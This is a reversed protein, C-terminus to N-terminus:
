ATGKKCLLILRSSRSADFARGDYDGSLTEISLDNAGLMAGLQEKDYLRVREEYETVVRDNETVIVRKTVRQGDPSVRRREEVAYRDVHRQRDVDGAQRVQGANLYDLLFRGGPRLITAVEGFVSANEEDTEFYGFSTFMSLVGGVSSRCIPVARMDANVVRGEAAKRNSAAELLFMSLDMGVMSVGAEAFAAMHRGNGCTLDLVPGDDAFLMGWTSAARTAESDDRHQYVIPYLTEFAVEYWPRSM